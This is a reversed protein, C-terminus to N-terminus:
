QSFKRGAVYGSALALAIMPLPPLDRGVKIADALAVTERDGSELLRLLADVGDRGATPEAVPAARKDGIRRALLALPWIAAAAAAYAAAVILGADVDGRTASLAAFGAKTAFGLAVCAFAISIAGVAGWLLRRASSRAAADFAVGLFPALM